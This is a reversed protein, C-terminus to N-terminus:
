SSRGETGELWMQHESHLPRLSITGGERRRTAGEGESQENHEAHEKDFKLNRKISPVILKTKIGM